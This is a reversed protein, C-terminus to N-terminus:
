SFFKNWWEINSVKGNLKNKVDYFKRKSEIAKNYNGAQIKVHMVVEYYGEYLLYYNLHFDFIM